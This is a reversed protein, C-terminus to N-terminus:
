LFGHKDANAKKFAHTYVSSRETRFWTFAISISLHDHDRLPGESSRVNIRRHTLPWTVAIIISLHDHEKVPGSMSDKVIISMGFGKRRLWATMDRFHGTAALM